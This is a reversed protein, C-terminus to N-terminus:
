EGDPQLVYGVGRVTRISVGGSGRAIKRRLRSVFVDIVNSWGEFDDDYLHDIIQTRTLVTGPSRLFLRLLEFEKPTVAVDADDLRVAHSAPDLELGGCALVPPAGSGGRRLLARLRALLEEWEFPKVLYDDAGGDLGAVRDEVGDRATLLLVPATRGQERMAALIELGSRVPLMVDLVVVDYEVTTARWLGDEGDASLDVAYGEERLGQGLVEALAPDDEVVLVRVRARGGEDREGDPGTRPRTALAVAVLLPIWTAVAVIQKIRRIVDVGEPAV